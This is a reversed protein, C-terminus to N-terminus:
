RGRILDRWNNHVSCPPTEGYRNDPYRCICKPYAFTKVLFEAEKYTDGWAIFAQLEGDVRIVCRAIRVKRKDIVTEKTGNWKHHELYERIM